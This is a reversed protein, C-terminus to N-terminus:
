EVEANVTFVRSETHETRLTITVKGSEGKSKIYIGSMGGRISSVKPGILEAPGDVSVMLPENYFPLLNGFEDLVKVRLSMVDYTDKETLRDQSLKVDLKAKSMPAVTRSKVVEGNVVADFRYETSEGGWNGIYKQYLPVADAPNMHYKVVLRIADWIMAKTMKGNNLSYNNLLHRCIEAQKTKMGELEVLDNGIYDDILIPGHSLAGFKSDAAKYEKLLRGNKYMRVSDANSIIYCDGRNSAPHEGIDMSSTLELVPEKSDLAAYVYSATKPNRYMDMVGHYCIRDGSGFDKHTNYDFMCWGFSGAIDDESAIANLVTAHRLVHNRRHEEWDFAKTPYMHGNYETVLYPKNMDNTVKEKKLCGENAGSHVFDNYTMVDEQINTNKDATRCRVGGTQRTSDFIHAVANTRAYFEDNDASENIRVGWIMISPHNRYQSIMEVVNSVAIDQWKKDGIHQWGPIETFVLLGLRDCEDIFYQSQPYHSTRVANVCLEEKLIKADYRQMSEPMAYGVYPYSQHRNLGRIRFKRGNLYFGDTKFELHRFGISSSYSDVEEGDILLKVKADYLRPAEVDWKEVSLNKVSVKVSSEKKLGTLLESLDEDEKLDTKTLEAGGVSVGDLEVQLAVKKKGERIIEKVEEYLVAEVGLTGPIKANQSKEGDTTESLSIEPKFFVDKLSEKEMVDLYVDRYIGGYTMYDIVYGFPPQKISERSDLKVTLINDEWIKLSSSIDVTFATYGNSHAGILEGNLYVEAKHAAGDFTLLIRKGEWKSEGFIKKQYTSVMQYVSEDFYDYPTVTVTHPITVKTSDKVPGLIYEDKFDAAYEWERNLYTRNRVIIEKTRGLLKVNIKISKM